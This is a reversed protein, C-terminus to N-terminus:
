SGGASSQNNHEDPTFGVLVIHGTVDSDAFVISTASNYVYVNKGRAHRGRTTYHNRRKQSASATRLKAHFQQRLLGCLTLIVNLTSKHKTTHTYTATVKMGQLSNGEYSCSFMYVFLQVYICVYTYISM